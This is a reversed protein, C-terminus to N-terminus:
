GVGGGGGGGGGGGSLFVTDHLPVDAEMILKFTQKVYIIFSYHILMFVLIDFTFSYVYNQLYVTEVM